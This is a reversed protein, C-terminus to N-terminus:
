ASIAINFSAFGLNARIGRGDYSFMNRLPDSQSLASKAADESTGRASGTESKYMDFESTVKKVDGNKSIVFKGSMEASTDQEGVALDRRGGAGDVVFKEGSRNYNAKFEIVREGAENVSSTVKGSLTTDSLQGSQGSSKTKDGDATVNVTKQDTLQATQFSLNFTMEGSDFKFGGALGSYAGFSVAVTSEPAKSSKAESPQPTFSVSGNLEKSTRVETNVKVANEGERTVDKTVTDSVDLNSLEFTRSGNKNKEQKETISGSYESDSEVSIKREVQRESVAGNAAKTEIDTSVRTESSGQTSGSIAMGDPGRVVKRSTELSERKVLDTETERASTQSSLTKGNADMLTNTTTSEAESHQKLTSSRSEVDLSVSNKGDMAQTIVRHSDGSQHTSADRSETTDIARNTERESLVEGKRDLNTVTTSTDTHSAADTSSKSQAKSSTDIVTQKVQMNGIKLNKVDTEQVVKSSADTSTSQKSSSDTETEVMQHSYQAPAAKSNKGASVTRETDTLSEAHSENAVTEESNTATKTVKVAVGNKNYSATAVSADTTRNLDTSKSAESESTQEVNVKQATAGKGITQSSSLSATSYDNSAATSHLEAKSNYNSATGQRSAAASSSSSGSSAKANPTRTESEASRTVHSKESEKLSVAAKESKLDAKAQRLGTKVGQTIEKSLAKLSRANDEQNPEKKAKQDAKVAADVKEDKFTITANAIGKPAEKAAKDLTKVTIMNTPLLAASSITNQVQGVSM